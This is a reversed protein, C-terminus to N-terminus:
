PKFSNEFNGSEENGQEEKILSAFTVYHAMLYAHTSLITYYPPVTGFTLM